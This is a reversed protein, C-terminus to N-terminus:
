ALERAVAERRIILWHILYLPLGVLILALNTAAEQHRRSTLYDFNKQNEQWSNYDVLWAALAQQEAETVEVKKGSDTAGKIAEPAVSPYPVVSSYLKQEQDAQTFVYAKLGMSIFGVGGIILLVLGILAFLYLYVTRIFSHKTM